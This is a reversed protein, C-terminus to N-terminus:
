GLAPRTCAFDVSESYYGNSGGFWRITVGGKATDIKYFTWTYSESDEDTWGEPEATTGTVEEASIIPTGILDELDGCIDEIDVSECCEQRHYMKIIEGTDATFRMSEKTASVQVATLTKGILEDVTCDVWRPSSEM